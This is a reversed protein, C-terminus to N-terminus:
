ADFLSIHHVHTRAHTRQNHCKLIDGLNRSDDDYIAM